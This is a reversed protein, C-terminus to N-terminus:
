AVARLALRYLKEREILQFKCTVTDGFACGCLFDIIRANDTNDMVNVALPKNEAPLFFNVSFYRGGDRLSNEQMGLFVCSQEFKM